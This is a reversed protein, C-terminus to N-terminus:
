ALFRPGAHICYILDSMIYAMKHVIINLCLQTLEPTQKCTHAIDKVQPIFTSLKGLAIYISYVM